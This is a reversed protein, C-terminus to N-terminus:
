PSAPRICDESLLTEPEPFGAATVPEARELKGAVQHKQVLLSAKHRM